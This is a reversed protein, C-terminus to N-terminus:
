AFPVLKSCRIRKDRTVLPVARVISTAAILQDAPDSQFDLRTSQVSTELDIPWVVIGRLAERFTRSSPDLNIRGLEFLKCVEWLVIASIGWPAGLLVKRERATIQGALAHLLVHTDLNLM